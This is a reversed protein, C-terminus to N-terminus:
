LVIGWNVVRWSDPPSDRVLIWHYPLFGPGAGPMPGSASGAAASIYIRGHVIIVNNEGPEYMNLGGISSRSARELQQNLLAEDYTLELLECGSFNVFREKIVYIASEIEEQTFRESVGIDIQVNDVIGPRLTTLAGFIFAAVVIIAISLMISLMIAIPTKSLIKKM